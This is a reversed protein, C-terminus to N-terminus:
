YAKILAFFQFCLGWIGLRRPYGTHGTERHWAGAQGRGPYVSQPNKLGTGPRRAEVLCRAAPVSFSPGLFLLPMHPPLGRGEPALVGRGGDEWSRGGRGSPDGRPRALVGLRASPRPEVVIHSSHLVPKDYTNRWRARSPVGSLNQKPKIQPIKPSFIRKIPWSFHYM